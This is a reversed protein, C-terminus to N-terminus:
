RVRRRAIREVEEDVRERVLDPLHEDLWEQVLPRMLDRVVDEFTRGPEPMMLPNNPARNGRSADALRDLEAAAKDATHPSLSPEPRTPVTSVEELAPAQTPDAAVAAVAEAAPDAPSASAADEIPPARRTLVLVDEQAQAVVAPGDESIIRRISALIEDLTPEANPEIPEARM